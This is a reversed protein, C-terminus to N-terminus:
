ASPGTALSKPGDNIWDHPLALQTAVELAIKKFETDLEPSVVDIDRTERDIIELVLLATGGCVILERHTNQKYLAQDLAHLAQQWNEPGILM